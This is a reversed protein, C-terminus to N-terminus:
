NMEKGSGLIYRRIERSRKGKETRLRVFEAFLKRLLKYKRGDKSKGGVERENKKRKSGNFSTM